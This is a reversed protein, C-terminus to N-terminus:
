AAGRQLLTSIMRKFSAVTHVTYGGAELAARLPKVQESRYSPVVITKARPPRDIINQENAVDKVDVLCRGDPLTVGVDWSDMEGWREVELGKRELWRMLDVETLGPVTLHRWVPWDLCLVGEGRCAALGAPGNVVEPPDGPRRGPRLLVRAKRQHPLFDCRLLEGTLRMPYACVPCPWWWVAGGRVCSREAPLPRYVQMRATGRRGYEELISDETGTPVEVLMLRGAVYQSQSGSALQRYIAHETQEATQWSWTPLWDRGGDLGGTAPDFLVELYSCGVEFAEETLQASQQGNEDELIVLDGMEAPLASWDLPIWSRLPRTLNGVLGAPTEPGAGLPLHGLIVGHMCSIERWARPEELRQTWAVGARLAASIVKRGLAYQADSM